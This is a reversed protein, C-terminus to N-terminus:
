PAKAAEAIVARAAEIAAPTTLEGDQIKQAFDMLPPGTVVGTQAEEQIHVGGHARIAEDWLGRVAAWYDRTATWYADGPAASYDNTHRYTNVVDEHVVAVPDGEDGEAAAMKMNDQIHVWGNPTLAHRNWGLYRDYVPNRVADRRALPRWTPDSTWETMGNAYSWRGVGGYRPSDDTQWVTQSWAGARDAESVPALRWTNPGTYTLVDAPQYVWDQRWHKIVFSQGEHEMVLIHQLSIRDGEDYVVRVIENGGSLKEELPEYGERFSANERMAFRVRFQGAQSLIAQRDREFASAPATAVSAAEQALAPLAVGGALVAALTLSLTFRRM